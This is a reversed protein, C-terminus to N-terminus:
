RACAASVTMLWLKSNACAGTATNASTMAEEAPALHSSNVDGAAPRAARGPGIDTTRGCAAFIMCTCSYYTYLTKGMHAM